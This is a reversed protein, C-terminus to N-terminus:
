WGGGGDVGMTRRADADAEEYAKATARMATAAEDADRVLCELGHEWRSSFREAAGELPGGGYSGRGPCVGDQRARGVDRSALDLLRVAAALQERDVEFGQGM